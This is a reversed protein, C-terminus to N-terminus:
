GSGLRLFSIAMVRGSVTPITPAAGGVWKIGSFWTITYGSAQGRVWLTFRRGDAENSLAVTVNNTLSLVHTVNDAACDITVTGSTATTNLTTFGLGSRAAAATAGGTGGQAVTVAANDTLVTASANPLTFTKESTTPGTFKTFGNGTGGYTSAIVQTLAATGDFNNGYISRATALATATGANGTVSTQDGTNTGSVAATGTVTLAGSGGNTLSVGNVSTATAAGINPTTLTPSTARVPAGSGTATTWVPLASAGGGVLIDTTAGSGLTQQAGTATTGTAVLCYATGGTSRGTGGDTVPVDTGGARYVVNGEVAIDGAGARSITADTTGGVELTGVTPANTVTPVGAAFVPVGNAASVDAGFGGLSTPVPASLATPDLDTLGSGVGTFSIATVADFTPSDTASLGIDGRVQAATRSEITSASAWRAYDGTVPTGSTSVNGSGAPTAWAGDGRLFTSGSPTGTASIGGVPLGTANTLVVASPTGLAPTTLTPSSARVVSGTGTVAVGQIVTSSTWEAIQGSTPTGSVSVDGGGSPTAWTGDGRWFTSASASTGSNLNTVPLNGAVDTALDIAGRTITQGSLTLYDLSGALTVDGTNTGSHTGGSLATDASLTLTRDADGTTLYLRRTGTLVSAPQLRLVNSGSGSAGKVMLGVNSLGVSTIDTNTGSAAAGIAVRTAPGDSVTVAGAAFVPVGTAASNDAGLGGYKTGVTGAAIQSGDLDTLNTGIGAVSKFQVDAATGLGLYDAVDAATGCAVVARGTNTFTALKATGSGTFYPLTNAASTLGALAALEADYGQVTVGIAAPALYDTGAVAASVATGDGKLIGSASTSVTIVPTSTDTAVSGAFGNASAVSVKTVTGSGGGGGTANLTGGSFTLNSGITVPSWKSTGSRYYITDTGTLAELAALDDALTFLLAPTSTPNAISVTFGAAPQTASVSTVTGSGALTIRAVGSAPNTVSGDPFQLTTIGKYEPSGDPETVVLSTPGAPGQQGATVLHIVQPSFTVPM